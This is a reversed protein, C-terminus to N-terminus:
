RRRRTEATSFITSNKLRRKRAITSSCIKRSNIRQRITLGPKPDIFLYARVRFPWRWSFSPFNGSDRSAIQQANSAMADKGKQSGRSATARAVAAEM